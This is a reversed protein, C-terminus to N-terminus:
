LTEIRIEIKMVLMDLLVCFLSLWAQSMVVVFLTDSVLGMMKHNVGDCCSQM